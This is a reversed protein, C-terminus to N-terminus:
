KLRLLGASTGRFGAKRYFEEFEPDFDVHLWELGAEKAAKAAAALLALGMGSRRQAPHVTTDLIFGHLGGDWAVNVFGLLAEDERVALYALSKSLVKQFDRDQHGPWSVRFLRNIAENSLKPSVEVVHDKL